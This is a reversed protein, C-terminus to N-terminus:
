QYQLQTTLEDLLKKSIGQEELKKILIDKDNLAIEIAQNERINMEKAMEDPTLLNFSVAKGARLDDLHKAWKNMMMQREALHASLDYRKKVSSQELHALQIEIINESFQMEYLGTSALQRFGHGTMKPYPDGSYGMRKLAQNFWAESYPKNSDFNYFVYGTKETLPRLREIIAMAQPSLPIIHDQRMKMKHAPVRWVSKHYDIDSWEFFRLEKTRVFCLTMLQLGAVTQEHGNPHNEIYSDINRLLDPFQHQEVAKMREAKHTRLAKNRGSAINTIDYGLTNIAYDFISSILGMSKHATESTYKGQSEFSAQIALGTKIVDQATIASIPYEGIHELIHNDLFGQLKQVNKTTTKLKENMYSKAIVEFLDKQEYNNRNKNKHENPDIDDSLLVKAKDREIRAQKLTVDPKFSADILQKSSKYTGVHYTKQKPKIDKDSQYRYAMVWYISGKPDHVLYLSDGDSYRKRKAPASKKAIAKVGSDTLLYTRRNNM